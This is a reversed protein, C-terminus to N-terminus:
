SPSMSSCGTSCAFDLRLRGRRMDAWKRLEPYAANPPFQTLNRIALTLSTWPYRQELIIACLLRTVLETSESQQQYQPDGDACDDVSTEPLIANSAASDSDSQPRHETITRVGGRWGRRGVDDHGDTDHGSQHCFVVVSM